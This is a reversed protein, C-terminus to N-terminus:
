QQSVQQSATNTKWALAEVSPQLRQQGPYSLVVGSHHAGVDGGDVEVGELEHLRRRVALVVVPPVEVPAQREAPLTQGIM